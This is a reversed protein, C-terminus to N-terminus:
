PLAEPIEKYALRRILLLVQDIQAIYAKSAEDLRTGSEIVTGTNKDIVFFPRGFILNIRAIERYYPEAMTLFEREARQIKRRLEREEATLTV